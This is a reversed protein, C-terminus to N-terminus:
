ERVLPLFLRTPSAELFYLQTVCLFAINKGSDRIELDAGHILMHVTFFARGTRSM